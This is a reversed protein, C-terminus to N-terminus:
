PWSTPVIEEKVSPIEKIIVQQNRIYWDANM